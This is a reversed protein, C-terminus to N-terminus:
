KLRRSIRWLQGAVRLVEKWTNLKFEHIIVGNIRFTKWKEDRLIVKLYMREPKHMAVQLDFTSKSLSLYPLAAKHSSFIRYEGKKDLDGEVPGREVLYLEFDVEVQEMSQFNFWYAIGDQHEAEGIYEKVIEKDDPYSNHLHDRCVRQWNEAWAEAAWDPITIVEEGNNGYELEESM